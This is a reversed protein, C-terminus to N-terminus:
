VRTVESGGNPCLARGRVSDDNATLCQVGGCGGTLVVLTTDVLPNNCTSDRARTMNHTCRAHGTVLRLTV